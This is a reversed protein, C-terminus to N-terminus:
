GIFAPRRPRLTLWPSVFVVLILVVNTAVLIDALISRAGGGAADVDILLALFYSLFIVM